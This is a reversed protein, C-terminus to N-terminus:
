DEMKVDILVPIAGIAIIPSITTHWTVAPTIVEDGPKIFNETTPNALAFLALLNASSGSNVMIGNKVGIYDSWLKEFM